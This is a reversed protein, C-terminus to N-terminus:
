GVLRRVGDAIALGCVVDEPRTNDRETVFLSRGFLSLPTPTQGGVAAVFAPAAVATASLVVCDSVLEHVSAALVDDFMRVVIRINPALERALLAADLNEVDNQDLFAIADSDAIRAEQLAAADLQDVRHLEVDQTSEPVDSATGHRRRSVVVVDTDPLADLEAILRYSLTNDGCVIHRRRREIGVDPADRDPVVAITGVGAL